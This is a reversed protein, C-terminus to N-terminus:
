KNVSKQLHLLLAFFEEAARETSVSLLMKGPEADM